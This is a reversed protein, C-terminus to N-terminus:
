RTGALSGLRGCFRNPLVVAVRSDNARRRQRSRDRDQGDVGMVRPLEGFDAMERAHANRIVDGNEGAIGVLQEAFNRRRREGANRNRALPKPWSAAAISCRMIAPSSGGFSGTSMAGWPTTLRCDVSTSAM